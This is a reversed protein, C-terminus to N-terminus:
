VPFHRQEGPSYTMNLLFHSLNVEATRIPKTNAAGPQLRQDRPPQRATM